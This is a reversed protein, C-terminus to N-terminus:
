LTLVDVKSKEDYHKILNENVTGDKNARTTEFPLLVFRNNLVIKYTRVPKLIISM